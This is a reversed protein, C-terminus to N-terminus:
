RFALYCLTADSPHRFFYRPAAMCEAVDEDSVNLRIWSAVDKKPYFFENSWEVVWWGKLARGQYGKILQVALKQALPEADAKAIRWFRADRRDRKLSAIEPDDEIDGYRRDEYDELDSYSM